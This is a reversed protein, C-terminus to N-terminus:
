QSLSRGGDVAIVQGTIYPADCVLFAVTRAIDEPEGRRRLPVKEQVNRQEGASFTSNEEPWLIAGPAIANVRVEPALELALSKSLMVLAAKASCYVSHERLPREAYIDAMNVICGGSAKLAPALAQSLFLPARLNSAFLQDWDEPQIAGVPTPFFDSANNILADLRGFRALAAEALHHVEDLVAFDAALIAASDPRESNLERCLDNAADKSNRYHLIVSYGRRHLALAIHRGIRQAAGTVLAVPNPHPKPTTM